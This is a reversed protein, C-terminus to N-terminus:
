AISLLNYSASPGFALTIPTMLLGLLPMLTHYGLDTGVPAAIYSTSWPSALHSVQRAVWWLDWVYGGADRTAPLRGALYTVRPWTVAIGAALYCALLVLHRRGAGGRGGPLESGDASADDPRAGEARAGDVPPGDVPPGDTLAPSRDAELGMSEGRGSHQCTHPQCTHPQCTHPQCTHPQCTHAALHTHCWTFTAGPLGPRSSPVRDRGLPYYRTGPAAPTKPWARM